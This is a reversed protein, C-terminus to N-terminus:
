YLDTRDPAYVVPADMHGNLIDQKRTCLLVYMYM